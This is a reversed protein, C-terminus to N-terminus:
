CKINHRDPLSGYLGHFSAQLGCTNCSDIWTLPGWPIAHTATHQLINCHTATHILTHQLTHQNMRCPEKTHRTNYHTATRTATHSSECSVKKHYSTHQLTNCYKNCHTNGHTNLWTFYRKTHHLDKMRTVRSTWTHSMIWEYTVCSECSRKMGTARSIQIHAM